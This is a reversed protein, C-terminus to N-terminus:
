SAPNASCSRLFRSQPKLGLDVSAQIRRQGRGLVGAFGRERVQLVPHGAAAANSRCTGRDGRLTQWRWSAGLRAILPLSVISAVRKRLDSGSVGSVCPLRSVIYHECVRLIAESYSQPAHGEQVVAEDCAREREDILRAGIWWVLPHFWFLVEVLMHLAATLNDRRRLHCSEHALVARLQEPTLRDELGAPLLLVPRFIGVIGPESPETTVRVPAPFGAFAAPSAGRLTRRVTRWRVLWRSAVVLGGLLWALALLLVLTEYQLLWPEPGNVRRPELLQWQDTVPAIPASLEGGATLLRTAVSEQPALDPHWSLQSGLITLAAFPVLFKLSAVLWLAYRVRASNKRLLLALAGIALAFLTSQWLHNGLAAPGDYFIWTVVGILTENM